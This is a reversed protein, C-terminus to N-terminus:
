AASEKIARGLAEGQFNLRVQRQLVAPADKSLSLILFISFPMEIMGCLFSRMRLKDFSALGRRLM